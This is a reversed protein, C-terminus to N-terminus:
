ATERDVLGEPGQPRYGMLEDIGASYDDRADARFQAWGAPSWVRVDDLNGVLVVDKRGEAARDIGVELLLTDPIRVRGTKDCKVASSYASLYQLTRRARQNSCPGRRLEDVFRQWDERERLCISGDPELNAMLAFDARRPNLEDRILVPLQIRGEGDLTAPHEGILLLPSSM